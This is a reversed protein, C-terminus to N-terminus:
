VIIGHEVLKAKVALIEKAQRPKLSTYVGNSYNIAVQILKQDAYTVIGQETGKELLIQWNASGVKFVEIEATVANDFRQDKVARASEIAEDAASILFGLTEESLTFERKELNEWCIKQKCYTEVNGTTRPGTFVDYALRAIKEIDALVYDPVSQRDWVARFNFRLRTREIERMLKAVTYTVLQAKYARQEKYWELHAVAKDTQKFLIAKAVLHRYYESNYRTDSKGWDKEMREQFRTMNVEAGWAVNYPLQDCSNIYKAIDTKKFVQNKPRIREFAEKQAKTMKMKAQDYQGRTREFFWLTQVTSNGVPPAYIKRSFEEMRIYFEHNSNLDAATVKSQSNAFKAINRVFESNPDIHEGRVITLKMQVYIGELSNKDKITASALSATTQGGNVIQLDTFSTIFLEGDKKETTVELATTSIGNNYPFFKSPSNLITGRMGANVKNNTKLFSRVNAELLRPGYKKYIDSLFAGPVIALYADFEETAVDARICPIGKVGFEETTIIIEEREFDALKTQYVKSIDIVDLEVQFDRDVLSITPLNITKWKENLKNTSAVFLHLKHILEYNARIERALAVVPVSIDVARDSFYGKIVNEFFNVLQQPAWDIYDKSLTTMEGPNYDVCLLNLTNTTLDLSQADIHMSKFKTTGKREDFYCSTLESLYSYDNVLIDEIRRIFVDTPHEQMEIAESQIETLFEERFESLEM